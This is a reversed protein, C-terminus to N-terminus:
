RRFRRAFALGGLGLSILLYTSPEPVTPQPTFDGRLGMMGNIEDDGDRLLASPGGHIVSAYRFTSGTGTGVAYTFGDWKIGLIPHFGELWVRQLVAVTWTVKDNSLYVTSEIAEGPLPGHDVAPFVAAKSAQFGLDFIVDGVTNGGRSWLNDIQGLGVTPLQASCIYALSGTGTLDHSVGGCDKNTTTFPTPVVTAVVYGTPDFIGDDLLKNDIVKQRNVPNNAGYVLQAFTGVTAGQWNRPDNPNTVLAAHTAVATALCLSLSVSFKM